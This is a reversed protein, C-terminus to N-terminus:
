IYQHGYDEEVDEEATCVFGCEESTQRDIEIARVQRHNIHMTGQGVYDGFFMIIVNYYLQYRM